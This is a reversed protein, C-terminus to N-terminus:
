ACNQDFRCSMGCGGCNNSDTSLNVCMSDCFTQNGTTCVCHADSCYTDSPCVTGCGGCNNKDKSLDVCNGGCSQEGAPCPTTVCGALTTPLVLVIARLTNM